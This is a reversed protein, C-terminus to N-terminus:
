KGRSVFPINRFVYLIYTYYVRPKKVQFIRDVIFTCQRMMM